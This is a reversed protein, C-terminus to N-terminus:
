EARPLMLPPQRDTSQELPSFMHNSTMHFQYQIDRQLSVRSLLIRTQHDEKRRVLHRWVVSLQVRILATFMENVWNVRQAITCGKSNTAAQDGTEAVICWSTTSNKAM